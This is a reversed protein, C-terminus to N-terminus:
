QKESGRQQIPTAVPPIMIQLFWGQKRLHRELEAYGDSPTSPDAVIMIATRTPHNFQIDLGENSLHFDSPDPQLLKRLWNLM